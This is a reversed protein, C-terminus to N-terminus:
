DPRLGALDTDAPVEVFRRRLRTLDLVRTVAPSPAILVLPTATHKDAELVTRIGTSDIFGVQAMDLVVRAGTDLFTARIAASVDPATALDLEGDLVLVPVGNQHRLTIRLQRDTKQSEGRM